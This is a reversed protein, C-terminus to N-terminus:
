KDSNLQERVTDVDKDGRGSLNVILIQDSKMERAVKLAHAVAHASKWRRFLEKWSRCPKFLTSRKVMLFAPTNLVDATMFSRTSRDLPLITSGQPSQTRRRLRDASTKFCM